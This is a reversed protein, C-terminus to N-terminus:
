HKNKIHRSISRKLMELGCHPCNAKIKNYEKAKEKLKDKNADRYEKEIQKIKEKNTKRYEKQQEKIKEKNRQYWEKEIQKIKEINNQRYEKNQEKIIEKNAEKYEKRTRNPICKNICENNEIYFREKQHLEYKDNYEVKEVVSYSYDNNKLIDFSKTFYGKGELYKKYKARHNAIRSSLYHKKTSGYYVNGNTNDYIKYIYGTKSM